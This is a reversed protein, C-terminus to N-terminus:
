RGLVAGDDGHTAPNKKPHLARVEHVPGAIGSREIMAHIVSNRTFDRMWEPPAYVTDREAEM